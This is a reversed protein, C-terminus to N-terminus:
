TWTPASRKKISQKQEINSRLFVKATSDAQGLAHCIITKISKVAKRHCYSTLRKKKDFFRLLRMCLADFPSLVVIRALEICFSVRRTLSEFEQAPVASSKLDLEKVM